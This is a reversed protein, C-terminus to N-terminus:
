PCYIYTRLDEVRLQVNCFISLFKAWLRRGSLAIVLVMGLISLDVILTERCFFSRFLNGHKCNITLEVSACVCM